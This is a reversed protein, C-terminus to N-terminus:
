FNDIIPVNGIVPVDVKYKFIIIRVDILDDQINEAISENWYEHLLLSM